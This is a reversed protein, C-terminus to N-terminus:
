WGSMDRRSGSTPRTVSVASPASALYNFAGSSADVQDDNSGDPFEELEQVYAANWAGRVLRVNKAEVQSSFPGARTVKDGTPRIVHLRFGALLKTLADVDAVGAQGPDQEIGVVVGHGDLEATARMTAQVEGPRGRFRVVDEVVYTRDALRSMLVGATWDGKLSAARDWYRIRTPSVPAAPLTEFWGRKFLLGAAPKILWDGELLQARRVVDNDMLQQAYGPDNELLKPNDTLRAPIFVRSRAGPTGKPVFVEGEKTQVVYLVQGPAAPPLRRGTDLDFRPALGEAEFEPNLWPGWRRMVWGHGKSGPNTTSRALRPLGPKSSRLRNCIERYQVEEFHTLEDFGVVQYEQGHYKRHDKEHECNGFIIEAGSPFRWTHTALNPRAGPFSKPYIDDAKDWLDKLDSYERRLLLAKFYRNHVWRLPLNVLGASKGGGAAGGYLCERATTALFREQPGPNAQWLIKPPAPETMM